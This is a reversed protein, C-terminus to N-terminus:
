RPLSLFPAAGVNQVSRLRPLRELFLPVFYVSDPPHDCSRRPGFGRQFRVLCTGSWPSKVPTLGGQFCCRHRLEESSWETKCSSRSTGPPSIPRAPSAPLTSPRVGCLACCLFLLGPYRQASRPAYLGSLQGSLLTLTPLSSPLHARTRPQLTQSTPRPPTAAPPATEQSSLALAPTGTAQPAFAPSGPTGHSLHPREPCGTGTPSM